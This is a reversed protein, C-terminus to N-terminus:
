EKDGMIMKNIEEEYVQALRLKEHSNMVYELMKDFKLDMKHKLNFVEDCRDCARNFRKEAIKRGCRAAALEKGIEENFVDGPHCKAVGRVTKGAFSSIAIVKNPTVIYRYLDKVKSELGNKINKKM